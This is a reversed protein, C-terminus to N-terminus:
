DVFRFDPSAFVAHAVDTWAELRDAEGPGAEAVVAELVRREAPVPQRGFARLFLRDLRGADSGSGGLARRAASGALSRIWPDNLLYLAQSAVISATRAGTVVDADAGDFLRLIEHRANRFGPLYVSRWPLEPDFGFDARLSAPFTPGAPPDRRLEGSM